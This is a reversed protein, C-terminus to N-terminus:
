LTGYARDGADGLGPVIYGKDNLEADICAAFIRLGPFRESLKKLAPPCAVVCVVTINSQDGGRSVIDELVNMVTGGTALMPDAVLIRDEPSFSSPLKNLYSTAQLTEENRVLGVHYTVQSPLVTSIQEVLVLGARLIPVVKVPQTPDVFTADAVGVPSNIQQQMTPLWDRGAEYVLIRGLEALAARFIPPPTMDNRAIAM